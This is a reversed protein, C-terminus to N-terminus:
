LKYKINQNQYICPMRVREVPQIIYIGKWVPLCAPPSCNNSGRDEGEEGPAFSCAFSVLNEMMGGGALRVSQWGWLSEMGTWKLM